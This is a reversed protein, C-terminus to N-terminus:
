PGPPAPRIDPPIQYSILYTPKALDNDYVVHVHSFIDDGDAGRVQAKGTVSNFRVVIGSEERRVPPLTLNRTSETPEMPCSQGVLVTALFIQRM